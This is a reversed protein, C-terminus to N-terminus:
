RGPARHEYGATLRFLARDLTPLIETIAIEGAAFRAVLGYALHSIIAPLDEVLGADAGELVAM